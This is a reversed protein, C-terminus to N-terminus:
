SSIYFKIIGVRTTHYTKSFKQQHQSRSLVLTRFNWCLDAMLSAIALGSNAMCVWRVDTYSLWERNLYFCSLWHNVYHAGVARYRRVYHFLRRNPTHLTLTLTHRHTHWDHLEYIRNYYQWDGSYVSVTEPWEMYWTPLIRKNYWFIRACIPFKM